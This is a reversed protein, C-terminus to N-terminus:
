AAVRGVGLTGGGVQKLFADVSLEHALSPCGGALKMLAGVVVRCDQVVLLAARDCTLEVARRWRLLADQVTDPARVSSTVPPSQPHTNLKDHLKCRV